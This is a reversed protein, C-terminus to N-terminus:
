WARELRRRLRIVEEHWTEIEAEWHQILGWDPDSKAKESTIKDHHERIGYERVAIKKRLERNKGV